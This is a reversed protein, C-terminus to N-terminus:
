FYERARWQNLWDIWEVDDELHSQSIVKEGLHTQVFQADGDLAIQNAESFSDAEVFYVLECTSQTIVEYKAM